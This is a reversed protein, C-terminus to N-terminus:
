RVPALSEFALPPESSAGVRELDVGLERWSDRPVWDNTGKRLNVFALEPLSMLTGRLGRLLMRGGDLPAALLGAVAEGAGAALNLAGFIPRPWVVHDTYFLFFSDRAGPRVARATLPSSERLWVRLAGEDARMRALRARRLSPIRFREQVRYGREVRGASVFPIFALLGHGDVHGGLAAAARSPDAFAADLTAFLESVCNHALLHYGRLRRVEDELWRERGEAAVQARELTDIPALLAVPLAIRASRLPVLREPQARLARGERWAGLIELHRNAADELDAWAAQSARRAVLSRLAERAVDGSELAVAALLGRRRALLDADLTPAADAYADLVHLRGERLSAEIAVLRAMGVLLAPGWDPRSADLLRLSSTRLRLAFERLARREDAALRLAPDDASRVSEARLPRAAELVELAVLGAALDAYRAGFGYEFALREDAALATTAREELGPALRAMEARLEARRRAFFGEGREHVARARLEALIPDRARGPGAAEFYGAGPIALGEDPPSEEGRARGPLRALLAREARAAGLADLQSRQAELRAQFRERAARAAADELEIRSLHIPRNELLAYDHLFRQSDERALLLLGDVNQFHYTADGFRLAAHGGSSGGENAEIHLFDFSGAAASTALAM